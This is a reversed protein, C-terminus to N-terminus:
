IVSHGVEILEAINFNARVVFTSSSMEDDFFGKTQFGITQSFTLPFM